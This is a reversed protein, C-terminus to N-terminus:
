SQVETLAIGQLEWERRITAIVTRMFTSSPDVYDGYYDKVGDCIATAVIDMGRDDAPSPQLSPPTLHEWVSRYLWQVESNTLSTSGSEAAVSKAFILCHEFQDRMSMDRYKDAYYRLEQTADGREAETTTTM